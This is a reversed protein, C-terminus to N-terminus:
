PETPNTILLRHQTPLRPFSGTLEHLSLAMIEPSPAIQEGHPFFLRLGGHPKTVAFDREGDTGSGVPHLTLRDHMFPVPGEHVICHGLQDTPPLRLQADRHGTVEELAHFGLPPAAVVSRAV